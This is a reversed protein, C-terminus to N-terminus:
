EDIDLVVAPPLGAAPTARDEKTLADWQPDHLAALLRSQADRFTQIYILDHEIATQTWVVANLNDNAAASTAAAAPPTAPHPPTAPCGALLTSAALALPLHLRMPRPIESLPPSDPLIKRCPRTPPQNGGDHASLSAAMGTIGTMGPARMCSGVDAADRALEGAM